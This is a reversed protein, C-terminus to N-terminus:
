SFALLLKWAEPIKGECLLQQAKSHIVQVSGSQKLTKYEESASIFDNIEDVTPLAEV